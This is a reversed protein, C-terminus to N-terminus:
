GLEWSGATPCRDFGALRAAYTGLDVNRGSIVAVVNRGETRSRDALLAGFALAGSPEAVIGFEEFAAKMGGLAVEDSAAFVGALLRKNVEFTMEGPTLSLLADCLTSSTPSISVRAERELSLATDDFGAPEVGWVRTSPSLANMALASGAALGGGSCAVYFDDIAFGNKAAELAAERAVTGAGAMIRVDDFAPILFLGEEEWSQILAARDATRRDYFVVHAGLARTREIKNLPSDAPMLIVVREVGAERAAWAVARGHNGSSLALVGGKKEESTLLSMRNWAGRVKFSGTPQFTEAKVLLRGGCLQNLRESEFLPMPRLIAALRQAAHEIDSIDPLGPSKMEQM